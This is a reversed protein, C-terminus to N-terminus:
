KAAHATTDNTHVLSDASISPCSTLYKQLVNNLPFASARKGRERRPPRWSHALLFCISPTDLRALKMQPIDTDDVQPSTGPSLFNTQSRPASYRSTVSRSFRPNLRPQSGPREAGDPFLARSTNHVEIVHFFAPRSVERAARRPGQREQHRQDRTSPNSLAFLASALLAFTSGRDIV